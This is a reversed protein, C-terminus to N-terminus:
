KSILCIALSMLRCHRIAFHNFNSKSTFVFRCISPYFSAPPPSTM